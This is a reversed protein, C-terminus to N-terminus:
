RRDTQRDTYIIDLGGLFQGVIENTKVYIIHGDRQYM